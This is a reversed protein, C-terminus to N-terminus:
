GSAALPARGTVPCPIRSGTIASLRGTWRSMSNSVRWTIVSPHSVHEAARDHAPCRQDADDIPLVMALVVEAPDPFQSEQPAATIWRNILTKPILLPGVSRPNVGLAHGWSCSESGPAATM